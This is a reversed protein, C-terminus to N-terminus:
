RAAPRAGQPIPCTSCNRGRRRPFFRTSWRTANRGVEAAVTRQSPPMAALAQTLAQYDAGIAALLRLMSDIVAPLRTRARRVQAVFADRDRPLPDDGIFARDTAAALVDALLRGTPVTTKLQLASQAFGPGGKDFRATADKLNLKLLRMVGARTSAEAADRTDRMALSVSDGDDILAPFGTLRQAGRTVVLTEPLDGFDWKRIGRKEQVPGSAAFSMQAAEGLQARLAAIDRGTALEGGGADVVCVNVLLHPPLDTGDWVDTPPADGLRDRLYNRLADPMPTATDPSFELFATVVESLPILRNRWAKPM